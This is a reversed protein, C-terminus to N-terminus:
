DGSPGIEVIGREYEKKDFFIVEHRGRISVDWDIAIVYEGHWDEFLITRGTTQESKVPCRQCEYNWRVRKNLHARAEEYTFGKRKSAFYHVAQTLGFGLACTLVFAPASKLIKSYNM